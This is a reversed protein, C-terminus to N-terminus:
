AAKLVAEFVEVKAEAVVREADDTAASHDRKAAELGQQAATRDIDELTCAEAAIIQCSSDANITVSGAAVFFKKSAGSQSVTVVGPNLMAVSPVHNAAVGFDGGVAPVDVLDVPEDNYFTSTPTAFTLQGAKSAAETAYMRRMGRALSVVSRQMSVTVREAQHTDLPGM